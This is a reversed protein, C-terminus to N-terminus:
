EGKSWKSDAAQSPDRLSPAGRHVEKRFRGAAVRRAEKGSRRDARSAVGASDRLVRFRVLGAPPRERLVEAPPRGCVVHVNDRITILQM